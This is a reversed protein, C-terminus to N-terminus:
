IWDKCEKRQEIERCRGHLYLVAWWIIKPEGIRVWNMKEIRKYRGVCGMWTLQRWVWGYRGVQAEVSLEEFIDKMQEELSWSPLTSM